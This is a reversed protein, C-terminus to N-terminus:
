RRLIIVLIIHIGMVIGKASTGTYTYPADYAFLLVIVAQPVSRNTTNGIDWEEPEGEAGVGVVAGEVAPAQEFM